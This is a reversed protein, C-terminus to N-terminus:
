LAIWYGANRTNKISLQAGAESLKRRLNGITTEVVNTELDLSQGWVQTLLQDKSWIKSPNEALTKLLVFEKGSLILEQEGIQVRREILNLSVNGVNLVPPKVPTRQRRQLSKIRAILESSDFPKGLYDDAGLELVEAKESPTSIASLVLIGTNAWKMKMKPLLSKTDLHGLLRDLILLDPGTSHDLAQELDEFRSLLQTSFGMESAKNALHQGLIFDDEAIWLSM